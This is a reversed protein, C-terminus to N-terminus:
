HKKYINQITKMNSNYFITAQFINKQYHMRKNYFTHQHFKITKTASVEEAKLHFSCVVPLNCKFMLLFM